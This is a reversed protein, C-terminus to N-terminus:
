TGPFRRAPVFWSRPGAESQRRPIRHGHLLAIRSCRFSGLGAKKTDADWKTTQYVWRISARPRKRWGASKPTGLVFYALIHAHAGKRVTCPVGHGVFQAGGFAVDQEVCRRAARNTHLHKILSLREPQGESLHGLQEPSGALADVIM